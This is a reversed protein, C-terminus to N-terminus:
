FAFCMRFPCRSASSLVDSPVNMAWRSSHVHAPTASMCGHAFAFTTRPWCIAGSSRHILISSRTFLCSPSPTAHHGPGNRAPPSGDFLVPTGTFPLQLSAAPSLLRDALHQISNRSHNSPHTPTHTLTNTHTTSYSQLWENMKFTSPHLSSETVHAYLLHDTETLHPCAGAAAHCYLQKLPATQSSSLGKVVSM